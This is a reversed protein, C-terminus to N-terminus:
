RFSKGISSIIKYTPSFTSLFVNLGLVVTKRMTNVIEWYFRNPKFGQYMLLLYDQLVKRQLNAKNKFLIIFGISPIGIVWIVLLPLGVGLIWKIHDTSYCKYDMHMLMRSDKDDIEICQFVRLAQYTITPHFLFM